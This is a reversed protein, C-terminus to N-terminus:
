GPAPRLRRVGPAVCGADGQVSEGATIDGAVASRLATIREVFEGAADAVEHTAEVQEREALLSDLDAQAAEKNAEALL